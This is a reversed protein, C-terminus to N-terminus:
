NRSPETDETEQEDLLEKLPRDKQALDKMVQERLGATAKCDLQCDLQEKDNM